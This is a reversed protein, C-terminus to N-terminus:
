FFVTGDVSRAVKGGVLVTMPESSDDVAAEVIRPRGMESGQEFRLTVGGAAAVAGHRVLYAALAANATATAPDERIGLPEAFVRVHAANGRAMTELTFAVLCHAGLDELLEDVAQPVPMLERVAAMHEVPLLLCRLGTEVIQVPLGTRLTAIPDLSVAASTAAFDARPEHFRAITEVMCVHDVEGAPHRLLVTHTSGGVEAIIETESGELPIRGSEALVFAAGLVQHGSIAV